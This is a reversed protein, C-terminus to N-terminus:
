NNLLSFMFSKKKPKEHTTTVPEESTINKAENTSIVPTPECAGFLVCSVEILKIESVLWFYGYQDVMDKNIIKDYNKNFLEYEKQYEKDNIALDIKVYWLGISHQNIKGLKYFLFVKEDYAKRIDTQWCVCVTSGDKQIGLKKLSIRKTYVSIVDGVHATSKYIHDQIHPPFVGGVGKEEVTKDYCKDTLVDLYSDCWWSTNGVIDVRVTDPDIPSSGDSKLGNDKSPMVLSVEASLDPSYMPMSKKKAILAAKNAILWKFLEKGKLESPIKM